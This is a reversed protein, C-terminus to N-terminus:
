KCEMRNTQVKPQRIFLSPFHDGQVFLLPVYKSLLWLTRLLRGWVSNEKRILGIPM